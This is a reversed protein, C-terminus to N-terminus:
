YPFGSGGGGDVGGSVEIGVVVVLVVLVNHTCAFSINSERRSGRSGCDCTMSRPNRIACCVDYVM